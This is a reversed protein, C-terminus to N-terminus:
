PRLLILKARRDTPRVSSGAELKRIRRVMEEFSDLSQAVFTPEGNATILVPEREVLRCLESEPLSALESLSKQM